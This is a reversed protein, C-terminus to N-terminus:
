AGPIEDDPNLNEFYKNGFRDSLDFGTLITRSLLVYQDTGVLTGAKADGIYQLQHWWQRIGIRRINRVYRVFSM